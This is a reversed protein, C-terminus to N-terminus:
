AWGRARRHPPVLPRGDILQLRADGVAVAAEPRGAVLKEYEASANVVLLRLAVGVGAAGGEQHSMRYAVRGFRSVDDM